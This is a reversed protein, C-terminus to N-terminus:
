DNRAPLQSGVASGRLVEVQAAAFRLHWWDPRRPARSSTEGDPLEFGGTGVMKFVKNQKIELKKWDDASTKWNGLQSGITVNDLAAVARRKAETRIHSYHKDIKFAPWCSLPRDGRRRGSELDYLKSEESGM